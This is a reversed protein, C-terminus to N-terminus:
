TARGNRSITSSDSSTTSRIALCRYPDFVGIVRTVQPKARDPRRDSRRSDGKGFGSHSGRRWGLQSLDSDSPSLDQVSRSRVRATRCGLYAFRIASVRKGLKRLTAPKDEGGAAFGCTSRMIPTESGWCSGEDRQETLKEDVRGGETASRERRHRPPRGPAHHFDPHLGATPIAM